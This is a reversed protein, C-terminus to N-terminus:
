TPIRADLTSEPFSQGSYKGQLKRYPHIDLIMGFTYAVNNSSPVGRPPPPSSSHMLIVSNYYLSDKFLMWFVQNERAKDSVFYTIKCLNGELEKRM